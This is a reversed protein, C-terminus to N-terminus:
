LTNSKFQYSLALLLLGPILLWLFLILLSIVLWLLLIMGRFIIQVLRMVFSILRGTWDSQGYMPVFLNKAWVSFGLIQEQGLFFRWVNKALRGFGVSYWWVPFYLIEGLIQVIIKGSYSLFNNQWM